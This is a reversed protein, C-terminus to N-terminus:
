RRPRPHIAMKGQWQQARGTGEVSGSQTGAKQCSHALRAEELRPDMRTIGKLVYESDTVMTLAEADGVVKLAESLRRFSWATTPPKAPPM